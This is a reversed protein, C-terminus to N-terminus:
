KKKRKAFFEKFDLKGDGNTDKRKFMKEVNYPKGEKTKKDAFKAKMEEFDIFGNTDKDIRAFQKKQKAELDQQANLLSFSFLSIAIATVKLIKMIKNRKTINM